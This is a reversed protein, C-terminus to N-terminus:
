RTRLPRLIRLTRRHMHTRNNEGGVNAHLKGNPTKREHKQPSRVPLLPPPPPPPPPSADLLPIVLKKNEVEGGESLKRKKDAELSIRKSESHKRTERSSAKKGGSESKKREETRSSTRSDRSKRNSDSPRRRKDTDSSRKKRDPVPHKEERSRKEIETQKRVRDRRREEQLEPPTMLYEPTSLGPSAAPPSTISGVSPEAFGPSPEKILFEPTKPSPTKINNMEEARKM